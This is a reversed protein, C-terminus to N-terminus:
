YIEYFWFVLWFLKFGGWGGTATTHKSDPQKLILEDCTAFLWAIPRKYDFSSQFQIFELM